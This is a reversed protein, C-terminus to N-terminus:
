VDAYGFGALQGVVRSDVARVHLSCIVNGLAAIAHTADNELLLQFTLVLPEQLGLVSSTPLTSLGGFRTLLCNSTPSLLMLQGALVPVNLDRIRADFVLVPVAAAGDLINLDDGGVIAASV